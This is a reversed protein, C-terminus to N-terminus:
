SLKKKAGLFLWNAQDKFWPTVFRLLIRTVTIASFMSVLVGISLTVAFGKVFSSGFMILLSCTILTSFNSDRISTWARLFGEEVAVLLSRGRKLEERMREFILVNADVAVGISMIFGAIGALSLTIGFLKIVTLSLSVYLALAITALFGPLRYYLIMFLMIFLFAVIGARLSKTLSEAGLTAGIHEQSILEVPVPLAGANLRTSLLKAEAFGFQGTIVAQGNLIASNVTPVSIPSGDLFIGVPKGINRSTVDAFLTKGEDNFQLSVQVTGTNPDTVVEANKLQKGSLGTTKWPDAPPLIDQESKTSILIRSLEFEKPIVENTKYIVHYGFDTEIPGVIQGVKASFVAADFSPVMAGKPFVGLDGGKDKSGPDSSNAKALEAFNNANAQNFIEEAKQKSEDKTLRANDCGKAGIYCILIHSAQAQKEGDREGGRKAITWGDPTKILATAVEGPKSSLLWTFITEGLPSQEGVYGIYGNNDKIKPQDDSYEKVAAAFDKGKALDKLVQDAKKKAAVNFADMQKKEEATLTRAPENNQEKFELIPTEGIMAIAKKVDTVGPLDVIVRYDGGVKTTQVNTEGVGLGNVRREIVDRVGELASSQGSPEVSDVIARYELHTGGQLDLGLSFPKEPIRPLGLAISNNLRDIGMNAYKPVVFITTVLFLAFIWVVGWRIKSIETNSTLKKDSM